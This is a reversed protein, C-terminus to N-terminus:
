IFQFINFINIGIIVCMMGIFLKDVVTEEIKRNIKRGVAAGLIGGCMMLLLLGLSCDPVTGTLITWILSAIQSYLIIYLSNQAAQKTGMSFFYFLVALNFPGGGIGLFSSMVGLCFGICLCVAKGSTTRTRIHGKNVTYLLTGLTALMLCAAQVAGATNPNEFLSSVFQFLSKGCIGGIAASVALPVGVSQDVKSAGSLKERLVNYCSMALVTCGSLFSIAAVDLVGFADLVPKIIVGGGIGCIAGVISAGFSILLFVGYLVLSM